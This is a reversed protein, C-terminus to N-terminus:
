NGCRIPGVMLGSPNIKTIDSRALFPWSQSQARYVADAGVFAGVVGLNGELLNLGAPEAPRERLRAIEFRAASERSGTILRRAM